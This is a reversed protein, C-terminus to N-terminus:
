INKLNDAWFRLNNNTELSCCSAFDKRIKQIQNSNWWVLPDNSIKNIHNCAKNFDDFLINNNKLKELIQEIPRPVVVTYGNSIVITPVGSKMCELFTTQLTTNIILKSLKIEQRLKKKKSLLDKEFNELFIKKFNWNDSPHVRVKLRSNNEQTIRKLFSIWKKQDDVMLTSIPSPGIRYPYLHCNHTLFLINKGLFSRKLIKRKKLFLSPPVQITSFTDTRNWKFYIDSYKEMSYFHSSEDIYGGHDTIILKKGKSVQEASWIKFTDNNVHAYSTVIKQPNINIENVYDKMSKYNEVYSKPLYKIILKNCFSEFENKEENKIKLNERKIVTDKFIKRNLKSNITPIQKLSLNLKLYDYKNFAVDYLLFDNNKLFPNILNGIKSFFQSNENNIKKKLYNFNKNQYTFNKDKLIKIIELYILHNWYDDNFSTFFDKFDEFVPVGERDILATTKFENEALNKITEWRDWILPIFNVFFPGLIIHWYRESKDTQHYNNLIASFNTISRNYFEKLYKYDKKVKREDAWHYPAESISYNSKSKHLDRLCWKGIILNENTSSFTDIFPTTVLNQTM